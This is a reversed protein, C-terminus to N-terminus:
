KEDEIARIEKNKELSEFNQENIFETPLLRVELYIDGSSQNKFTL